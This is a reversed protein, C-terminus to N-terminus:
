QSSVFYPFVLLVSILCAPQRLSSTKAGRCEAYRCETHHCEAYRCESYAALIHCEDYTVTLMFSVLCVHCDAYIVSLM